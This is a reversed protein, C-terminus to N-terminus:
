GLQVAYFVKANMFPLLVCCVVKTTSVCIFFEFFERMDGRTELQRFEECLGHCNRCM